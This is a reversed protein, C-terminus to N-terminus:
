NKTKSYFNYNELQLNTKTFDNTPAFSKTSLLYRHSIRNENPDLSIGYYRQFYLHLIWVKYLNSEISIESNKPIIAGVKYIDGLMEKDRKATGFNLITMLAVVSLLGISANNIWKGLHKTKTHEVLCLINEIILFSIALAYFPYTPVLYFRRQETTILLPLTGALAITLFFFTSKKNEASKSSHSFIKRSSILVIISLTIPIIEEMLLRYLLYFRNDTTASNPNTFTNVIRTQFYGIFYDRAPSYYYLGFGFFGLILLLIFTYEVAVTLTSRNTTLSYALLGILPFTGQIGKCMASLFICLSMLIIPILRNQKRQFFDFIFYVSLLIFISMTNEQLNNTYSWFCAPPIIWLLVPLWWHAKYNENNHNIKQWVIKILLLNILATTFSYIRETYMSEGFLHFFFSTIWITLPPQDFYQPSLYNTLHLHWWDGLGLSLNRAVTAYIVGDMFM